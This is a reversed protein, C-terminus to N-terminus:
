RPRLNKETIPLGAERAKKVLDKRARAGERQLRKERRKEARKLTSNRVWTPIQMFFVWGGLVPVSLPWTLSVLTMSKMDEHRWDVHEDTLGGEDGAVVWCCGAFVLCSVLLYGIISGLIILLWFLM